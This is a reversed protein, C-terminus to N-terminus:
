CFDNYRVTHTLERFPYVKRIRFTFRFFFTSNAQKYTEDSVSRAMGRFSALFIGADIKRILIHILIGARVHVYM